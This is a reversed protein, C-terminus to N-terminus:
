DPSSFPLSPQGFSYYNTKGLTPPLPIINDDAVSFAQPQSSGGECLGISHQKGNDTSGLAKCKVPQLIYAHFILM